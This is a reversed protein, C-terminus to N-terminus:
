QEEEIIITFTQGNLFKLKIKEDVIYSIAIYHQKIIFAFDQTLQQKDILNEQPKTRKKMIFSM